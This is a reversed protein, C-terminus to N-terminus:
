ADYDTRLREALGSLEGVINEYSPVPAGDGWDRPSTGKRFLDVWAGDVAMPVGAMQYCLLQQTVALHGLHWHVNNNFGPPVRMREEPSLDASLGVVLRRTTQLVDITKM